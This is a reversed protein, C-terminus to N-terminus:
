DRRPDWPRTNQRSVEDFVTRRNAPFLGSGRYDRFFFVVRVHTQRASKEAPASAPTTLTFTSIPQINIFTM